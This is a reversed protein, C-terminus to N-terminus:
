GLEVSSTTKCRSVLTTHTGFFIRELLGILSDSIIGADMNEIRGAPYTLQLGYLFHEDATGGHSNTTENEIKNRIIQLLQRRGGHRRIYDKQIEMAFTNSRRERREQETEQLSIPQFQGYQVVREWLAKFNTIFEMWSGPLMNYM